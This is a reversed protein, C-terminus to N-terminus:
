FAPLPRCGRMLARYRGATKISSGHQIFSRVVNSAKAAQRVGQEIADKPGMIRVLEDDVEVREVISSLYAKRM